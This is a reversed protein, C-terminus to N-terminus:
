NCFTVSHVLEKMSGGTIIFDEIRCEGEVFKEAGHEEIIKGKRKQALFQTTNHPAQPMTNAERRCHIKSTHTPPRFIKKTKNIISMNSPNHSEYYDSGSESNRKKQETM